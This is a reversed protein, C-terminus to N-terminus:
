SRPISQDFTERLLKAATDLVAQSSWAIGVDMTPITEVLDIKEVRRGDLTWPRYVVDSLITVAQGSAVLSRVAEISTSTLKIEPQGTQDTWYALGQKEADDSRLVAYPYQAVDALSVNKQGTLPHDLSTWLRRHSRHLTKSKLGVGGTLNSTLVLALDLQGKLLAQELTERTEEVLQVEIQPHQRAFHEIVPFAFYSSLTWSMGLRVEGTAQDSGTEVSKVAAEFSAAIDHAHHRFQQGAKTLRLGTPLREFLDTGLLCEMDKISLSVASQSVNLARAAASVQGADVVALFYRVQRHTLM